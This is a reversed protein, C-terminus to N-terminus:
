CDEDIERENLIGLHARALTQLSLLEFNSGLEVSEDSEERNGGDGVVRDWLLNL